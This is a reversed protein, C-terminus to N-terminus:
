HHVTLCEDFLCSVRMIRYVFCLVFIEGALFIVVHLHFFFFLEGVTVYIDLLM